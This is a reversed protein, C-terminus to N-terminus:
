RGAEYGVVTAYLFFGKMGSAPSQERHAVLFRDLKRELAPEDLHWRQSPSQGPSQDAPDPRALDGRRSPLTPEAAVEAGYSFLTPNEAGTQFLRPLGFVTAIAVTAALMVGAVDGARDGRDRGPRRRRRRIPIPENAIRGKVASAIRRYEDRVPESRIAAGILHYREWAAKSDANAELASVTAQVLEPDLEEDVLASLHQRQQDSMAQDSM